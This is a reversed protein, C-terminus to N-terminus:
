DATKNLFLTKVYEKSQFVYFSIVLSYGPTSNLKSPYFSVFIGTWSLYASKRACDIFM